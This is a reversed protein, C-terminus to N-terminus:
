SEFFLANFIRKLQCVKSLPSGSYTEYPGEKVALDSSTKLAHYYITEFIEKNLQQAQMLYSYVIM